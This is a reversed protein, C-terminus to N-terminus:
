RDVRGYTAWAHLGVAVGWGLAPWVPWFYAGPSTLFWIAVLLANVVTYTTAHAQFSTRAIQVRREAREEPLM